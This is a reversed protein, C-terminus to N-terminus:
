GCVADRRCIAGQYREADAIAGLLEAREQLEAIDTWNNAEQEVDAITVLLDARERM